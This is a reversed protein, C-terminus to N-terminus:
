YKTGKVNLYTANSVMKGAINEAVCYYNGSYYGVARTIRLKSTVANKTKSIRESATAPLLNGEKRWTVKVNGFSQFSCYFAASDLINITVNTPQGKVMPLSVAHFLCFTITLALLASYMV